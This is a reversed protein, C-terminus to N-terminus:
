VAGRRLLVAPLTKAIIMFDLALSWNRVYDRDLNVRAEYSLQSRGSVQWLGTIGPRRALYYLAISGYRALESPTVPRPGVLSMEGFIVNMLQPLEDLSTSRLFSGIRTIRPDNTLKENASWELAIVPDSSLLAQLRAAADVYMTRFKFCGFREGGLGVRTHTYFVPGGGDMKILVAVILLVPLLVLALVSAAGIDMAIKLTNLIPSRDYVWYPNSRDRGFGLGSVAIQSM